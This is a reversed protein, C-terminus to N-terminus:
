VGKAASRADERRRRESRLAGVVQLDRHQQILAELRDDPLYAPDLRPGRAALRRQAM